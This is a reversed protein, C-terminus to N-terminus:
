RTSFRYITVSDFAEGSRLVTSPFDTQHPSDPFHQTELCLGGYKQYAVGQKGRASGDLFNGSYFQIAPESTLVELRRGSAPEYLEAALKLNAPPDDLVFNHDYGGALKLQEDPAQIRDGIPTSERFDLATGAVSRREGTPILEADVPTFRTAFLKLRHSLISGCGAGALNFYAHNTLNVVTTKDTSARYEMKLDGGSLTYLVRVGLNGPFGEEGDQSLYHFALANEIPEAQWVVNHFGGPGGHLSHAGNNRALTCETGDLSFRAQAIRNAFRGITSGFFFPASSRHNEVYGNLDDYGLVIDRRHGTRDPAWLAAIAAGYALCHVEILNSKLRYLEVPTGDAMTGFLRKEM